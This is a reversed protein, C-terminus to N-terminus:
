YKVGIITKYNQIRRTMHDIAAYINVVIMPVGVFHNEEREFPRLPPCHM